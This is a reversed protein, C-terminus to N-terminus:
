VDEPVVLRVRWTGPTHEGFEVVGAHQLAEFAALRLGLGPRRDRASVVGSVGDNVVELVFADDVRVVTVEVFSPSAHKRANRVAELLLSQAVAELRPPVAAAGEALRLGLEPFAAAMREVEAVLTTGTSPAARGLPRQMASRLEGMAAQTEEACRQRSREPLDGSGDLAMSVGFLRQIVHEHVERALDIRSQLQRASERQTAFIRAVSALAAAKGLTWLLQRETEVLAPADLPRDAFIVGLERGAAAMPVCVLQAPEEVLGAFEPPFHDRLDGLLEVVRDSRLATVAIPASEVTVHTQELTTLDIGHAGVARVRHTIEDYRFVLARRMHALRCVAECMRGYFDDGGFGGDESRSLLDVLLELAEFWDSGPGAAPDIANASVAVVL